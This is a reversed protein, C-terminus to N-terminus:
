IERLLMGPYFGSGSVVEFVTETIDASKDNEDFEAMFRNDWIKGKAPKVVGRRRYEIKGMENEVVELVEFRSDESIEEKLGIKASLPSTSYLPTKVRFVEYEKQLQAINKDIARECVKRIMDNKSNVGGLTTKGTVVSHSGVYELHFLSKDREYATKKEPDPETIYYESYFRDATESDWALRYLYSTISVRFGAIENNIRVLANEAGAIALSALGGTLEAAIAGAVIVGVNAWYTAEEKDLYRIDNFVVFTNGILDEGADALMSQGRLSKEAVQASFYDADYLGREIVLDMNFTGDGSKGQKRNFWESVLRKALDNRTIFADLTEKINRSESQDTRRSTANIARVKLNHDNFKQPIPISAFVTDIDRDFRKEPHRVLISYLSSRRYQQVYGSQANLDLSASLLLVVLVGLKITNYRRSIM